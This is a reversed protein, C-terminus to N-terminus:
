SFVMVPNDACDYLSLSALFACSFIFQSFRQWLCIAIPIMKPSLGHTCASPFVTDISYRLKPVSLLRITQLLFGFRLISIKVVASNQLMMSALNIWWRFIVKSLYISRVVLCDFPSDISCKKPLIFYNDSFQSSPFWSSVNILSKNIAFM